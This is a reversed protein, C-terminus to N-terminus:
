EKYTQKFWLYISYIFTILMLSIIFFLLFNHHTLIIRISQNPTNKIINTKNYFQSYACLVLLLFIPITLLFLMIFSVNIMFGLIFRMNSVIAENIRSINQNAAGRQIARAGGVFSGGEQAQASPEIVVRLITAVLIRIVLTLIFIVFLSLLIKLICNFYGGLYSYIMKGRNLTSIDTINFSLIFENMDILNIISYLAFLISSFMFPAMLSPSYMKTAEQISSM